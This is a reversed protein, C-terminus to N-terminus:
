CSEQCKFDKQEEVDNCVSCLQPLMKLHIHRLWVNLSRSLSMLMEAANRLHRKEPGRNSYKVVVFCIQVSLDRKCFTM